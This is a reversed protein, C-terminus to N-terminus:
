PAAIPQDATLPLPAPLLHKSRQYDVARAVVEDISEKVIIREGSTLTIFTDPRQEVYRILDANIVFAEGDLRTVKIM